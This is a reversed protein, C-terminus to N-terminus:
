LCILETQPRSLFEAGEATVVVDEELGIYGRGPLMLGPELTYVQGIELPKKPSDGYREWLPALIGGGDHARRGLQHGTGYMYEPYGAQTVTSRAIADVEYGLVGPKMARAAKQIAEVVVEFGHRVEPPPQTEGEALFYVVRQLDSCFGAKRVGFDIHLIQGRQICLETPGSHGVPSDPGANVAPCNTASWALELNRAAARQQMFRAIEQESQGPCLFNFTEIFIEETVEIAARIRALEGVTKRGVLAHIIEESSTLRTAYPTDALIDLLQRYMGHTLGDALPDNLSTNIAIRHPDLAAIRERLVESIGQHYPIVETYSGLRQVAEAEYHGVIAIREGTRSLLLASHWTLDGEGFILPLIPDPTLMTERVFTLWLDVGKEQLIQIAQAVKEQVLESM